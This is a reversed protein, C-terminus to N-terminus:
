RHVLGTARPSAGDESRSPGVDTWIRERPMWGLVTQAARNTCRWSPPLPLKPVREPRAAGILDAIADVYDGYRLPEDVINFTSGTPALKLSSAVACAMDAVNVMSVYNSGDGAVVVDGTRLKEIVKGEGTGAGVFSGGRLITWALTRPDVDRIMAEMDIVPKCIAARESSDDLPSREDLWADGGDRYAMVISQQVYRPVRCALAADMLRRTGATRLRATQDWAESASPDAPIATAIHIVADCGRVIEILEDELLDADILEAAAPLAASSAHRSIARVRHGGAILRPVVARGLVGTAGALFVRV